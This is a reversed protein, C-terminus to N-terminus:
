QESDDDWADRHHVVDTGSAASNLVLRHALGAGGPAVLCLGRVSAPAASPTVGLLPAGGCPRWFTAPLTPQRVVVHLTALADGGVLAQAQSLAVPVALMAAGWAAGEGAGVGVGLSSASASVSSGALGAGAGGMSGGGPSLSRLSGGRLSGGGPVGPQNSHPRSGARSVHMSRTRLEAYTPLLLLTACPPAAEGAPVEGLCLLEGGPWLVSAPQKAEGAGLWPQLTGDRLLLGTVRLGQRSSIGFAFAGSAWGAPASSSHSHHLHPPSPASTAPLQHPAAPVARCCVHALQVCHEVAHARLLAAVPALPRSLLALDLVPLQQPPQGASLAVAGSGAAAAVMAGLVDELHALRQCVAAQWAGLPVARAGLAAREEAGTGCGVLWAAPVLGEGLQQVAQLHQAGVHATGAVAARSDKDAQTRPRATRVAVPLAARAARAAALLQDRLLRAEVHLAEALLAEMSSSLARPRSAEAQARAALRSALAAAAAAQAAVWAELNELAQKIPPPAFPRAVSPSPGNTGTLAKLGTSTAATTTPAPAKVGPRATAAGAAGKSGPDPAAQSQQQQLALQRQRKLHLTRLLEHGRQPVLAFVDRASAASVADAANSAHAPAPSGHQKDVQQKHQQQQQQQQQGGPPPAAAGSATTSASPEDGPVPGSGVSPGRLRPRGAIAMAAMAGTRMLSASAQQGSPWGEGVGPPAKGHLARLAALAARSARTAHQAGATGCYRLLPKLPWAGACALSQALEQLEAQGPAQPDNLAAMLTSAGAAAAKAETGGGAAGAAAAYPPLGLALKAAMPSLLSVSTRRCDLLADLAALVSSLGQQAAFPWPQTPPLASEATDVDRDPLLSHVPHDAQLVNGALLGRAVWEVHAALHPAPCAPLFVDALLLEHLRTHDLARLDPTPDQRRGSARVRTHSTM